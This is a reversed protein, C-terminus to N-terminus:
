NVTITTSCGNCTIPPPCNSNPTGTSVSITLTMPFTGCVRVQLIEGGCGLDLSGVPLIDIIKNTCATTTAAWLDYATPEGLVGCASFCAGSDSLTVDDFCCCTSNWKIGVYRCDTCQLSDCSPTGQAPCNLLAEVWPQLSDPQIQAASLLCQANGAQPMALLLLFGVTITVMKARSIARRCTAMRKPRDVTRSSHSLKIQENKM